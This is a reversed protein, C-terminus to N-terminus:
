DTKRNRGHSPLRSAHKIVLVFLHDPEVTLEIVYPFRDDRARRIGRREDVVPYRRPAEAAQRTLARMRKILDDGLGAGPEQADLYDAAKILENEAQRHVVTRM